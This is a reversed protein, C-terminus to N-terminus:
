ETTSVLMGTALKSSIQEGKLCNALYLAFEMATGPGKSTIFRGDQVVREDTVNAGKLHPEFGPYCTAKKGSLYGLEGLIMPAACIAAIMKQAKVASDLFERLSPSQFLHTTGPMGGPLVILETDELRCESLLRDAQVPIRHAGSVVSREAVSVTQVEVEARRLVDVVTLAEIEEFGDALMVYVM